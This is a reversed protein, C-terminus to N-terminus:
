FSEEHTIKIQSVRRSTQKIAKPSPTREITSYPKIACLNPSGVKNFKYNMVKSAAIAMNECNERAEAQLAFNMAGMMILVLTYSKM